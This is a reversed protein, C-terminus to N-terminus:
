SVAAASPDLAHLHEMLSRGTQPHRARPLVDAAPGLAFHRSLLGPHPLNLIKSDMVVQGYILLDLDLERMHNRARAVRHCSKEIRKLVALLDMASLSTQVSVASNLFSPQDGYGWPQTERLESSDKLRIGPTNSIMELAQRLRRGRPSINSGMGIVASVEPVRIM